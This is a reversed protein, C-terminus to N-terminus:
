YEHRSWCLQRRCNRLVNQGVLTGRSVDHRGSAALHRAKALVTSPDPSPSAATVPHPHACAALVFSCAVAVTLWWAVPIPHM